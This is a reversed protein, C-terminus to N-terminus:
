LCCIAATCKQHQQCGFRVHYPGFTDCTNWLAHPTCKIFGQHVVEGKHLSSVFKRPHGDNQVWKGGMVM